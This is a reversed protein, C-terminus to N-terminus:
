LMTYGETAVATTLPGGATSSGGIAVAGVSDRDTLPQLAVRPAAPAPPM